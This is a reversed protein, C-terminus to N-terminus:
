LGLIALTKAVTEDFRGDINEVVADFTEALAMEEKAAALRRAIDEEPVGMRESRLRKGIDELSGPRLFVVQSDPLEKKLTRAGRVDVVAFVAQYRELFDALVQKSSGYFNGYVEAYEFLENRGLREEFEKRIQNQYNVSLSYQERHPAQEFRELIQGQSSRNKM